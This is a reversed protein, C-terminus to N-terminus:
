GYGHIKNSEETRHRRYEPKTDLKILGLKDLVAMITIFAQNLDPSEVKHDLDTLIKTLDSFEKEPLKRKLLEHSVLYLSRLRSRPIATNMSAGQLRTKTYHEDAEIYNYIKEIIILAVIERPPKSMTGESNFDM